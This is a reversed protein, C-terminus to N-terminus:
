GCPTAEVRRQRRGGRAGAAVLVVIGGPGPVPYPTGSQSEITWGSLPRMQEDFVRVGTLAAGASFDAFASGTEGQMLPAAVLMSVGTEFPAGFTVHHPLSDFVISQTVEEALEEDPDGSHRLFLHADAEEGEASGTLSYTYVIFGAGSPGTIRLVDSFAAEAGARNLGFAANEGEVRAAAGVSGYSAWASATGSFWRGGPQQYGAQASAAVSGYTDQGLPAADGYLVAAHTVLSAQAVGACLGAGAMLIVSRAVM